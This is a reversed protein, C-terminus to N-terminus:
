RKVAGLRDYVVKGGIVTLDVKTKMIDEHPITLLDKDLVIMDALKGVELTGKVKEEWSLFPGNATYMRIAEPMSVAEEAGAVEGNLGKRTVAAYLGVLPGIPLNDSGFAMFINFKKVPTAISNNHAYRWADMTEKYRGSLNYTFNPQQAIMMNHKAMLAMTENPPMITFHDMFWRHDRGKPQDIKDLARAYSEAQQKIAADGIAHLGMQWGLAAASDVMEQLEADTFRGKGRFGPQGNYDALTWATPGTFGGDIANEGIPGIRLRDDGYGTAHGFAKLREAGPYSIYMTMRPIDAGHEAYVEKMRGYSNGPGPNAIGGKGVPEADINGSAEFISTIGLPLLNKMAQIFGPKLEGWTAEPVHKGVVDNRERIVGNPEGDPGKEILGNKPDPTNRTVGALKLALSNSVSSHGGARVIQVPNNPAAADLDQRNPNRKEAFEAEDWNRGTIWEGPGLEAAKKRIMDQLEVISKADDFDIARKALGRVHVHTDTFGPMLLRGGLDIETPADYTKALDDGGVAIIKGDRVVVAKHISFDKDVTLVKANYLVLDAQEGSGSGCAALGITMGATAALLGLRLAWKM